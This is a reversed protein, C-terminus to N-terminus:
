PQREASCSRSAEGSDSNSGVLEKEPGARREDWRV